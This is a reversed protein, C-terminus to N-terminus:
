WTWMKCYGIMMVLSGWYPLLRSSCRRASSGVVDGLCGLGVEMCRWSRGVGVVGVVATVVALSYSPNSGVVAALLATAAPTCCGADGLGANSHRRVGTGVEPENKAGSGVFKRARTWSVDTAYGAAVAVIVAGDEFSGTSGVAEWCGLWRSGGVAISRIDEVANSRTDVVAFHRDM